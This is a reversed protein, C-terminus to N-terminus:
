ESITEREKAETFRLLLNSILDRHTQSICAEAMLVEVRALLSVLITLETDSLLVLKM